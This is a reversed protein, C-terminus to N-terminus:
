TYNKMLYNKYLVKVENPFAAIIQDAMEEAVKITMNTKERIVTKIVINVLITRSADNLFGYKKFCDLVMSGQSSTELITCVNIESPKVNDITSRYQQQKNQVSNFFDNTNNCEKQQWEKDNSRTLM